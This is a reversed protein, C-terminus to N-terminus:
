SKSGCNRKSLSTIQAVFRAMVMFREFVDIGESLVYKNYDM